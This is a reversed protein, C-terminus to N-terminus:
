AYDARLIEIQRELGEIANLESAINVQSPTITVGKITSNKYYKAITRSVSGAGCGLDILFAEDDRILALRSAVELNIQELMQERDFPNMGWRYFGIHMNLARSWHAYDMGAAEYFEMINEISGPQASDDIVCETSHTFAALNGDMNNATNLRSVASSM